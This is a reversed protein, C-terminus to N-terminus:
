QRWHPHLLRKQWSHVILHYVVWCSIHLLCWLVVISIQRLMSLSKDVSTTSKVGGTDRHIQFSQGDWVHTYCKHCIRQGSLSIHVTSKSMSVNVYSRLFRIESCVWCYMRQKNRRRNEQSITRGLSFTDSSSLRTHYRCLEHGYNHTCTCTSFLILFTYDTEVALGVGPTDLLVTKIQVTKVCM